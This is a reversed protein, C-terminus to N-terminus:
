QLYKEQLRTRDEPSFNLCTNLYNELSGYQQDIGELASRFFDTNVGILARIVDVEANTGGQTLVRNSLSNVDHAYEANSLNFDAIITERDAGLAALLFATALGCRDKGQTCHWLVGKPANLVGRLFKGYNKQALSDAIITPYLKKAIQKGQETFALHYILTNIDSLQQKTGIGKSSVMREPITPLWSYSAGQIIKDPRATREAASRFDFVSSIAYQNQLLTLDEPTAASLDASRLLVGSRIVRGKEGKLGGLDRANSIGAFHITRNDQASICSAFFASALM